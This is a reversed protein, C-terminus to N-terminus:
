LSQVSKYTEDREHVSWLDVKGEFLLLPERSGKEFESGTSSSVPRSRERAIRSRVVHRRRITAGSAM